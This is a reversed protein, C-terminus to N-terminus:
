KGGYRMFFLVAAGAFGLMALVAGGFLQPLVKKWFERRDIERQDISIHHDYHRRRDGNPYATDAKATHEYFERLLQNHAREIRAFRAETSLKTELPSQDTPIAM